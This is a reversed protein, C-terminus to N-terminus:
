ITFIAKGSVPKKSFATDPFAIKSRYLGEPIQINFKWRTPVVITDKVHIKNAYIGRHCKKSFTATYKNWLCSKRFYIEWSYKRWDVPLLPVNRESSCIQLQATTGDYLALLMFTFSKSFWGSILIPALKCIKRYFSFTGRRGDCQSFKYKFCECLNTANFFSINLVDACVGM